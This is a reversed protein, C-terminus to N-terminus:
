ADPYQRRIREFEASSGGHKRYYGLIQAETQTLSPKKPVQRDLDAPNLLRDKSFSCRLGTPQLCISIHNGRTRITAADGTYSKEEGQFNRYRVEIANAPAPPPSLRERARSADVETYYEMDFKDCTKNVCKVIWLFKKAGDTGCVPCKTAM